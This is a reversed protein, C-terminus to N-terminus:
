RVVQQNADGQRALLVDLQNQMQLALENTPDHKLARGLCLRAEVLDGLQSQIQAFECLLGTQEAPLNPAAQRLCTLAAEREGLDALSQSRLLYARSPIQSGSKQDCLRDVTALARQPRNSLRYLEAVTVQVEPWDPKYILARHYAEIAGDLEGRLRLVDGKLAWASPNNRQSHLVLEAEDAAQSLENQALHM